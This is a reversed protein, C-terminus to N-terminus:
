RYLSCIGDRSVGKDIDVSEAAAFFLCGSDPLHHLHSVTQNQMLCCKKRRGSLTNKKM